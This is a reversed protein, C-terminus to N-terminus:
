LPFFTILLYIILHVVMVPSSIALTINPPNPMPEKIINGKPIVKRINDIINNMIPAIPNNVYKILFWYGNDPNQLNFINSHKIIIPSMM